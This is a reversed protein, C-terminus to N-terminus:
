GVAECRRLAGYLPEFGCKCCMGTLYLMKVVGTALTVFYVCFQMWFLAYKPGYVYM